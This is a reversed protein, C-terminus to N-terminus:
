AEGSRLVAEVIMRAANEIGIQSSIMMQYLHPDRWDCGYRTRIYSAREQDILRILEVINGTPKVRSRVRSVRERWPGYIFVHLADRREQLVCQAGRGVIVCNGIAAANAIVCQAIAAVRDADFFQAEEPTAGAQIAAAQLGARHFRHWWSDVHEDYRGATEDDVQAARAVAGILTRDLLSWGLIEAVRKAIISGGGGYERNVTLVRFM